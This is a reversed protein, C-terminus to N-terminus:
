EEVLLDQALREIAVELKRDTEYTEAQIQARVRNVTELRGPPLKALKQMWQAHHSLEVTDEGHAPPM